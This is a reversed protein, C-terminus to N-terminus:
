PRRRKLTSALLGLGALGVMALTGPEPILVMRELTYTSSGDDTSNAQFNAGMFVNSGFLNAYNYDPFNTWDESFSVNGASLGFVDITYGIQNITATISYNSENANITHNVFSTTDAAVGDRNKFVIVRNLQADLRVAFGDSWGGGDIGLRVDSRHETGGDVVFDAEAVEWTAVFSTLSSLDFSDISRTGFNSHVNGTGDDLILTEESTNITLNANTPPGQNNGQFLQIGNDALDSGQDFNTEWITAAHSLGTALAMVAAAAALTGMRRESQLTGRVERHIKNM